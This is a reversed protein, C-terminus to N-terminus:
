IKLTSLGGDVHIIQGTIWSSNPSLLFASIEAIDKPQGVKKLPNMAAQASMKAESNLFRDALPTNTLSPAVANVRIKPALEAALSKTLGEIAGKSTSVQTHFNFGNQVAVTSYMLISAHQANSLKPLLHQIIKTAGVVQLNFDEIFDAGSFRKFPKLVIRGPCYVLGHIEDPLEQLVIDDALVDLHQYSINESDSQPHTNYTAYVKNGEEALKTCLAEGIGSSGGIVVINGM